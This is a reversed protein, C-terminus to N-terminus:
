PRYCPGGEAMLEEFAREAEAVAAPACTGSERCLDRYRQLAPAANCDKAQYLAYALFHWYDAREPALEIARRLEQAAAKYDRRHEALFRGRWARLGHNAAHFALASELDAWAATLRGQRELALARHRLIRPDLPDLELALDWDAMASESRGQRAFVQARSDLAKADHPWRALFRDFDSLALELHGLAMHARGRNDLYWAQEGYSLARDYHAIAAEPQGARMLKEAEIFDPFGYLTELAAQNEAPRVAEALFADIEEMSGGWWPALSALYQFRILYSEPQAALGDRMIAASRGGGHAMDLDILLGYAPALDPRRALAAFSDELAQRFHANTTGDGGLGQSDRLLWGLRFHYHARALPAAYSTPYDANWQDLPAKLEPASTAFPALLEILAHEDQAGSFLDELEDFAGETLLARLAFPSPQAGAWTPLPASLLVLLLCGLRAFTM